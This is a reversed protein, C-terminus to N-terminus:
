RAGPRLDAAAPVSTSGSSQDDADPWYRRSLYDLAVVVGIRHPITAILFAALAGFFVAGQTWSRPGLGFYIVAIGIAVPIRDGIIWFAWTDGANREFVLGCESCKERTTLRGDILAGAGCHPCRRRLGNKLATWPHITTDAM